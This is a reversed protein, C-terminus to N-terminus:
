APDRTNKQRSKKAEAWEVADGILSLVAPMIFIASAVSFGVAILTCLGFNSVIPFSSICLASFGFFTALGSVTIATGIRSVSEQIAALNDPHRVKEESYREMMLITYEAAVGITMSGMTATMPSYDINFMYMVVSNWGVVIIIPVLPTVAFIHRYVLALFVFILIFGLYTMSDKTSTMGSILSTFVEFDGVPQLAIGEPPQLFAIDDQMLSKLNNQRPIELQIMDFSIVGRMAGSLYQDKVPSPIKKLVEDVGNQTEPLKGGNYEEICTVISTASTLENHHALEYDQFNQMWELTDLDTIQAGRVYFTATTTSGIVNQVIDLEIKAPMTSPVFNNQNAEIPILPDVQFGIVAILGAILLVPIPNKAIRVSIGTLFRGYSWAKKKTQAAAGITAAMPKPTYRITQAIAPIGFLSICYCSMIGIIAVLAFSKIMPIPSIFMAVFGLSTALMAYMVAPGTKTVTIFIADDLSGKRAEEDLRSQFQIAYDIGLGIMVPFAGMVAINFSIGFLGMMGLASIIGLGVILVPLFRNSVYSFLLGMVLVMLIMAAAILIKVQATMESMMQAQFAPNGSVAVTVGAPPESQAIIAEINNLVRTKVSPSLGTHPYVQVLTMIKSPVAIERTAKPMANVLTDIEGSSDPLKGGNESKLVDVVSSSKVIYQQQDIDQELRDIYSLVDPSLPDGAKVVLIISDINFTQSYQNNLIGEKSNKDLYTDNSTDMTILTMGYIAVIFLVAIAAIILKSRRNVFHAIAGFVQEIM